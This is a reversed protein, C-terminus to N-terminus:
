KGRFYHHAIHTLTVWTGTAAALAEIGNNGYHQWVALVITLTAISTADPRRQPKPRTV